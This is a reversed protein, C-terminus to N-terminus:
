RDDRRYKPCTGFHVEYGKVILSDFLLDTQDPKDDGRFVDGTESIYTRKGHRLPVVNVPAVNVPMLKGKRTRIWTIEAGCLKCKAM